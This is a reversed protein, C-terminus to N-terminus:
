RTTGSPSFSPGSVAVADPADTPTGHKFPHCCNRAPLWELLRCHLQCPRLQQGHPLCQCLLQLAARVRRQVPAILAGMYMCPTVFGASQFDIRLLLGAGQPSIALLL